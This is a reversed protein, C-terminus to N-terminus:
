ETSQYVRVYDVKYKIPFISNTPDGGNSGLALNLLLNQPQLFPNSGDPNITESLPTTNLLINDIYLKIYEKTWNM